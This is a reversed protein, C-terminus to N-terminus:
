GFGCNEPRTAWSKAKGDEIRAIFTFSLQYICVLAFAIALVKIAGKSQM